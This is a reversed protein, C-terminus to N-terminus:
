RLNAKVRYQEAGALREQRKIFERLTTAYQQIVVQWVNRSQVNLFFEARAAIFQGYDEHAAVAAEFIHDGGDM